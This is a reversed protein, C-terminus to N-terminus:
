EVDEAKAIVKKLKTIAKNYEIPIEFICEFPLLHYLNSFLPLIKQNVFTSDEILNDYDSVPMKKGEVKIQRIHWYGNESDWLPKNKWISVCPAGDTFKKEHKESDRTLYIKIVVNSDNDTEKINVMGELVMKKLQSMKQKQKKAKMIRDIKNLVDEVKKKM